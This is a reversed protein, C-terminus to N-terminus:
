KIITQTHIMFLSFERVNGEGEDREGRRRM